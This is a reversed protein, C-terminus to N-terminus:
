LKRPCDRLLTVNRRWVCNTTDKISPVSKPTTSGRMFRISEVATAQVGGMFGDGMWPILDAVDAPAHVGVLEAGFAEAVLGAAAVVRKDGEGGSLPAMIRAWDM